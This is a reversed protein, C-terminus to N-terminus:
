FITTYQVIVVQESRVIM